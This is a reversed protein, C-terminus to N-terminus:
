KKKKELNTYMQLATRSFLWVRVAQENNAKGM